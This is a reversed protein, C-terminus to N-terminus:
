TKSPTQLKRCAQESDNSPRELDRCAQELDTYIDVLRGLGAGLTELDRCAQELDNCTEAPKQLDRGFEDGSYEITFDLSLGYFGSPGKSCYFKM